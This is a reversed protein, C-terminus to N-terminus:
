LPLGAPPPTNTNGGGGGPPPPHPPPASTNREGDFGAEADSFDDGFVPDAKEKFLIEVGDRDMRPGHLLHRLRRGPPLFDAPRHIKTIRHLAIRDDDAVAIHRRARLREVIRLAVAAVADHDAAADEAVEPNKM